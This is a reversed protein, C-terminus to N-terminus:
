QSETRTYLSWVGFRRSNILMTWYIRLPPFANATWPASQFWESHYGGHLKVWAMHPPKWRIGKLLSYLTNNPQLNLICDPDFIPNLFNQGLLLVEYFNSQKFASEHRLIRLIIYQDLFYTQGNGQPSRGLFFKFDPIVKLRYREGM